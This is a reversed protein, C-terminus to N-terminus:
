KCMIGSTEPLSGRLSHGAQRDDRSRITRTSLSDLYRGLMDGNDLPPRRSAEEGCREAAVEVQDIVM